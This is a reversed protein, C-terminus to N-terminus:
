WLGESTFRIFIQDPRKEIGLLKEEVVSQGVPIVIEFVLLRFM